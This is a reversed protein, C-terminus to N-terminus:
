EDGSREWPFRQIISLGSSNEHKALCQYFSHSQFLQSDRSQLKHNGLDVDRGGESYFLAEM